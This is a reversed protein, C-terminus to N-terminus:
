RRDGGVSADGHEILNRWYCVWLTPTPWSCAAGNLNDVQEEATRASGTKSSLSGRRADALFPFEDPSVVASASSESNFREILVM